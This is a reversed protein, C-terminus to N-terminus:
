YPSWKPSIYNYRDFTIREISLTKLSLLYLQYQGSVNSSFVVFSGDPSFSPSQSNAWAGNNKKLSTLRKLSSGDESSLFLDMRGESWASFVFERKVPHWDPSSNHHGINVAKKINKGKSDATYIATRGGRDSAFVLRGTKPHIRASVNIVGKPGQIIPVFISNKINFRFIDSSGKGFSQSLLINGGNSFFASSLVSSSQYSLLQVRNKLFDHLFLAIVRKNLKKNLVFTSYAIKDRQPSWAPSMVISDHYSVRKNNKGNWDMVFLEKKFKGTSRIAAIRTGFIGKLGTLKKIIDNSLIDILENSQFVKAKYNKKLVRKKSNVNYLFITAFLNEGEISYNGFFLFDAGIVKWNEFRFGLQKKPYPVPLTNKLDELYATPSIILFYSSFSMNSRFRETMKQGVLLQERDQDTNEEPQKDEMLELRFDSVVLHSKVTKQPPEVNIYIRAFGSFPYFFSCFLFIFFVKRVNM